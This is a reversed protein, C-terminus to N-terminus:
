INFNTTAGGASFNYRIGDTEWDHVLKEVLLM